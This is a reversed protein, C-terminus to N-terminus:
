NRRNRKIKQIILFGASFLFIIHIFVNLLTLLVSGTGSIFIATPGDASDIIGISATNNIIANYKNQAISFFSWQAVVLFGSIVALVWFVKNANKM